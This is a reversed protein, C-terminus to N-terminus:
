KTKPNYMHYCDGNNYIYSARHDGCNGDKGITVMDVEGCMQLQRSFKPGKEGFDEYRMKLEGDINTLNDLKTATQFEEKCLM